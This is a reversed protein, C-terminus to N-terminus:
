EGRPKVQAGQREFHDSIQPIQPGPCLLDVDFSSPAAARDCESWVWAAVGPKALGATGAFHVRSEGPGVPCIYWTWESAYPILGAWPSKPDFMHMGEPYGLPKDSTRRVLEAARGNVTAACTSPLHQKGSFQLLLLVSGKTAAAPVSVQCDFEYRCSPVSAAPYKATATTRLWDKEPLSALVQSVAKGSPVISPQAAM